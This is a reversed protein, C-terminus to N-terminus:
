GSITQWLAFWFPVAIISVLYSLLVISSLAQEQGGYYKVQIMLAVAPPAAAQIVYFSALMPYDVALDTLCLVIITVVPLAVMKVAIVGAADALYHHLRLSIGGLIGGLIFIALPVTVSGIFAASDIVVTPLFKDIGAFVVALAALSAILPPTITGKFSIKDEPGSSILYKGVSWLYANYTVVYLFVYVQFTDFREPFLVSGVPLVFYGANQFGALATLNKKQPMSRIFVLRCAFIGFTAMIISSVPLVPWILLKGPDFHRVINSFVLCPLLVRITVASLANIQQDSIIHKRTLVGAAAAVLFVKIVAHLWLRKCINRVHSIFISSLKRM